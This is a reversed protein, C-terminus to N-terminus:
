DWILHIPVFSSYNPRSQSIVSPPFCFQNYNLVQVDFGNTLVTNDFTSGVLVRSVNATHTICDKTELNFLFFFFSNFKESGM